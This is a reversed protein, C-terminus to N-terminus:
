RGLLRPADRARPPGDGRRRRIQANPTTLPLPARRLVLRVGRCSSAPVRVSSPRRARRQARFTALEAETMPLAYVAALFARWAGWTELDRFAPLAGFLNPDAIAELITM